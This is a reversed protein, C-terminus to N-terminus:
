ALAGKPDGGCGIATVIPTAKPRFFYILLGDSRERKTIMWVHHDRQTPSTDTSASAVAGARPPVIVAADPHREAVAPTVQAQDYGGDATSPTIPDGIRELLADAM